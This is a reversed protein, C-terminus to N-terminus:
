TWPLIDLLVFTYTHRAQKTLLAHLEYDRLTTLEFGVDLM